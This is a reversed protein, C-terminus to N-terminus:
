GLERLQDPLQSGTRRRVRVCERSRDAGLDVVLVVSVEALVHEVTRVGGTREVYWTRPCAEGFQGSVSPMARRPWFLSSPDGSPASRAPASRETKPGEELHDLIRM